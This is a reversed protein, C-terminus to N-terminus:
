ITLIESVWGGVGDITLTTATPTIESVNIIMSVFLSVAWLVLINLELKPTIGTALFRISAFAIAVPIFFGLWGFLTFMLYSLLSGVLGAQNVYDADFPSLSPDESGTLRFDDRVEHTVLSILLFIAFVALILGIVQRRRNAGSKKRKEVM